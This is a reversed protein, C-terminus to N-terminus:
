RHAIRRGPDAADRGALRVRQDARNPDPRRAAHWRTGADVVVGRDRVAHRDAGRTGEPVPGADAAAREALSRRRFAPRQHQRHGHEERVHSQGRRTEHRDGRVRIRHLGVLFVVVDHRWRQNPHCRQVDAELPRLRTSLQWQAPAGCSGVGLDVDQEGAASVRQQGPGPQGLLLILDGVDRGAVATGASLGRGDRDQADVEAPAGELAPASDAITSSRGRRLRRDARQLGRRVPPM